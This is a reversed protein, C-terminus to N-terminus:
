QYTRLRRNFGSPVHFGQCTLADVVQYSGVQLLLGPLSYSLYAIDNEASKIKVVSIRKTCGISVLM